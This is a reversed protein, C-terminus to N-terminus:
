LLTENLLFLKGGIPIYIVNDMYCLVASTYHVLHLLPMEAFKVCKLYYGQEFMRLGRMHIKLSLM